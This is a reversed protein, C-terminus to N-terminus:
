DAEETELEAQADYLEDLSVAVEPWSARRALKRVADLAQRDAAGKAHVRWYTAAVLATFAGAPDDAQELAGAAVVYASGDCSKTTALKKIAPLLLDRALGGDKRKADVKAASVNLLVASEVSFDAIIGTGSRGTDLGPRGHVVRSAAWLEEHHHPEDEPDNQNVYFALAALAGDWCGAEPTPTPAVRETAV